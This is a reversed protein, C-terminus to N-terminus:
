RAFGLNTRQLAGSKPRTAIKSPHDRPLIQQDDTPEFALQRLESDCRRYTFRDKESNWARAFSIAEPEYGARVTEKNERVIDRPRSRYARDQM